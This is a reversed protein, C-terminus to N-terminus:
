SCLCKTIGHLTFYMPVPFFGMTMPEASFTEFYSKREIEITTPISRQAKCLVSLHEEM